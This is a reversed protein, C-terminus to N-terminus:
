RTITRTSDRGVHTSEGRDQLKKEQEVVSRSFQTPNRISEILRDRDPSPVIRESAVTLDSKTALRASVIRLVRAM